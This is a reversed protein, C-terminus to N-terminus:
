GGVGPGSPSAVLRGRGGYLMRSGEDRRLNGAGMPPYAFPRTLPQAVPQVPSASTLWPALACAAIVAVLWGAALTQSRRITVPQEAPAPRRPRLHHRRRHPHPHLDGSGSAGTRSGGSFRGDPDVDGAATGVGASRLGSRHRGDGRPAALSGVGSVFHGPSSGAPARALGVADRARGRPRARRALLASAPEGGPRVPPSEGIRGVLRDGARARSAPSERRPAGPPGFGGAGPAGVTAGAQDAITRTVLRQTFLSRGLDGRALGQLYGVYQIMLPQDLGLSERLAQAQEPSALGQALLNDTPDGAALRLAFFAVTAAAWLTFLGIGTRRLFAGNNVAVSGYLHNPPNRPGEPGPLVSLPPIAM